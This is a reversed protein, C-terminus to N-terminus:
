KTQIIFDFIKKARKEIQLNNAAQLSAESMKQREDPNDRLFAIANAVEEVSQPNIRISNNDNLIDDNCPLNSSIIPLGCAMAEIISNCCGEALTPLIFVDACNLYKVIDQHPLPGCFLIGECDPTYKKTLTDEESGIFISKVNELLNLAESVRRSGKRESFWGTYVIIFDDDSFGLAARAQSKAIKYFKNQDIGNPIVIIKEADALRRKVSEEKNESSVSIVGNIFKLLGRKRRTIRVKHLESEGCAVFAPLKERRGIDAAIFGCHWFHGYMVTPKEKLQKFAKKVAREFFFDRWILGFEIGFIKIDSITVYKPQIIEIKNNNKTMKAWLVPKMPKGSVLSRTISQPSIVTCKVGLDVLACVLQDVFTFEPNQATPYRYSIICIHEPNNAM